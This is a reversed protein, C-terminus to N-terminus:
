RQPGAANATQETPPTRVPGNLIRGFREEGEESMGLQRFVERWREPQNEHVLVPVFGAALYTKIAPFRPDDTGLEVAACGESAALHLLARVLCLGLGKGQHSHRVGLMHLVGTRGTPDAAGPVLGGADKPPFVLCVTGVPRGRDELFLVRAPRFSPNSGVCAFFEVEHEFSDAVVENWHAEDGPRYHRIGCGEPLAVPPLRRLDHRLCLQPVQDEM